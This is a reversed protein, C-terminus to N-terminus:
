NLILFEFNLITRIDKNREGKGKGREGKVRFRTGRETRMARQENSM